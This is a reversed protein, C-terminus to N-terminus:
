RMSPFMSALHRSSKASALVDPLLAGAFGGPYADSRSSPTRGSVAGCM